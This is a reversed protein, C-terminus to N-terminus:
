ASSILRPHWHLNSGMPTRSVEPLSPSSPSKVEAQAKRTPTQRTSTCRTPSREAARERDNRRCRGQAQDFTRQSGFSTTAVTKLGKTQLHTSWLLAKRFVFSGYLVSDCGRLFSLNILAFTPLRYYGGLQVVGGDIDPQGTGHCVQQRAPEHISVSRGVIHQRALANRSLNLAPMTRQKSIGRQESLIRRSDCSSRRNANLTKPPTM